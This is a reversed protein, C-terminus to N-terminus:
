TANRHALGTSPRPIQTLDRNWNALPPQVPKMYLSEATVGNFYVPQVGPHERLFGAIDNAVGDYPALYRVMVAAPLRGSLLM